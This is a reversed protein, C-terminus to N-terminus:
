LARLADQAKKLNTNYLVAKEFETRAAVLNGQKKYIKGRILYLESFARNHNNLIRDTISFVRDYNGLEYYAQIPEIQYWLTRFPLLNEVQEFEKVSQEFDDIHYLAVSLNFRAYINNANKNLHQRSLAVANTWATQENADEGLIAEALEKKEKPVLVLYEFNFKEWIVNFDEYSYYLNKGQLSDDQIFQRSTDDFGKIIRYHGIDEQASLWTRTIVPIDNAIFHKILDPNGNPRHYTLLNYEEAQQALEELTTSKDDNDGGARQYPRLQQGLEAQSVQIDYYSLAMSLAAPGCNNFTQFIHYDNSLLKSQPLPDLTITPKAPSIPLSSSLETIVNTITPTILIPQHSFFTRYFVVGLVAYAIGLIILMLKWM